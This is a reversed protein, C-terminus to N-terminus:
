HNSLRKTPKKGHNTRVHDINKMNLRESRPNNLETSSKAEIIKLTPNLIIAEPTDVVIPKQMVSTESM